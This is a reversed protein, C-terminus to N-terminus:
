EFPKGTLGSDDDGARAGDVRVVEVGPDTVSGQNELRDGFFNDAPFVRRQTPLDILKEFGLLKELLHGVGAASHGTAAQAFGLEVDVLGGEGIRPTHKWM